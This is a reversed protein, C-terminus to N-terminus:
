GGMGQNSPNMVVPNGILADLIDPLGNGDADTGTVVWGEADFDYIEDPDLGAASLASYFAEIDVNNDDLWSETVLM